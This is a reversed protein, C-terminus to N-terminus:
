MNKNRPVNSPIYNMVNHPPDMGRFCTLHGFIEFVMSIGVVLGNRTFSLGIGSLAMSLKPSKITARIIMEDQKLLKRVM